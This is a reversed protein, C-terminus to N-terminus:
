NCGPSRGWCRTVSPHYPITVLQGLLAPPFVKPLPERLSKAIANPEPMLEPDQCLSAILEPDTSTTLLILGNQSGIYRGKEDEIVSKDFVQFFITHVDPHAKEAEDLPVVSYPKRRVADALKPPRPTDRAPPSPQPFQRGTPGTVSERPARQVARQAARGPNAPPEFNGPGFPGADPGVPWGNGWGPDYARSTPRDWVMEDPGVPRGNSPGTPRCPSHNACQAPFRTSAPATGPGMPRAPLLGPGNPRDITTALREVPRQQSGTWM